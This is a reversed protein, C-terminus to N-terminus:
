AVGHGTRHHFYDGFGAETIVRRAARDIEQAPVGPEVLSFAAEYASCVTQYARDVDPELGDPFVDPTADSWYGDNASGTGVLL